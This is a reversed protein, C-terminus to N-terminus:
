DAGDGGRSARGLRIRVVRGDRESAVRAITAHLVGLLLVDVLPIALAGVGYEMALGLGPGTWQRVLAVAILAAGGIATFALLVVRWMTARPRAGLVVAGGFWLVAGLEVGLAGLQETAEHEEALAALVSVTAGIVMMAIPLAVALAGLPSRLADVPVVLDPADGAPAFRRHLWPVEVVVPDRMTM